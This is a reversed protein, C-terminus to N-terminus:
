TCQIVRYGMNIAKQRAEQRNRAEIVIEQLGSYKDGEVRVKLIFKQTSKYKKIEPVESITNNNNNHVINTPVENIYFSTNEPTEEDEEVHFDSLDINTVGLFNTISFIIYFVTSVMIWFAIGLIVGLIWSDTLWSIIWMPIALIALKILFEM